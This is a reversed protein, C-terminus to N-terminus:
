DELLGHEKIIYEAWQDKLTSFKKGTSQQIARQFDIGRSSQVAAKVIPSPTYKEELFAIFSSAAGIEVGQFDKPLKKGMARKLLSQARDFAAASTREGGVEGLFIMVGRSRKGGSEVHDRLGLQLFAPLLSVDVSDKGAKGSLLLALQDDEKGQIAAGASGSASSAKAQYQRIRGDYSVAIKISAVESFGQKRMAKEKFYIENKSDKLIGTLDQEYVCGCCYAQGFRGSDGNKFIKKPKGKDGQTFSALKKGNLYLEAAGGNNEACRPSKVETLNASGAALVIRLSAKTLASVPAPLDFDFGQYSDSGESTYIFPRSDDDLIILERTEASASPMAIALVFVVIAVLSVVRSM